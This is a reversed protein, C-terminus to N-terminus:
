FEYIGGAGNNENEDMFIKKLSQRIKESSYLDATELAGDHVIQYEKGEYLSCCKKIICALEKENGAKFKYGNLGDKVYYGPAAFDSAIVPTGCAMAEIAVLGLSEGERKTPFVFYDIANYFGCLDAQPLMGIRSIENELNKGSILENLNENEIGSGVIIFNAKIGNKKLEAVANAFVDWGKGTSIRGAMGFAPYNEHFGYRKKLKRKEDSSLEYFVTKDVGASPYIYLKNGPIGYKKEVYNKFYESPIIVKDSIKLIKETYKQMKEQRFNEPVVDCGHVNTYIKAKRIKYAAIVPPSSHAAQHVYILDYKGFLVKFFTYTYFVLYSMLKGLKKDSQYMVSKIYSVGIKDLEEAFKKVFIGYSPHKDDPYMNSVLLIKM